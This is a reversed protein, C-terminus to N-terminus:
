DFTHKKEVGKYNNLLQMCKEMNTPYNYNWMTYHNSIEYKLMGYCYHNDGSLIMEGLLNDCVMAEAMYMYGSDDTDPYNVGM